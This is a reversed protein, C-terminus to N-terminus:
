RKMVWGGGTEEIAKPIANRAEEITPFIQFSVMHFNNIPGIIQAPYGKDQLTKVLNEANTKESFSGVIIHYSGSQTVTQKPAPKPTVKEEEPATPTTIKETIQNTIDDESLDNQLVPESVEENENISTDDSIEKISNEATNTSKENTDIVGFLDKVKEPYLGTYIAGAGLLIIFVIIPYFFVSRTKATKESASSTSTDEKTTPTEKKQKPTETKSAVKKEQSIEEKAVFKNEPKKKPEKDVKEQISEKVPKITPEKKPNPTDIEQESDQVIPKEIMVEKAVVEAETKQTTETSETIEKKEAITKKTGKKWTEFAFSDDNRKVFQGFRYMSYTEGKNLLAILDRVYKSVKNLAEQKDIKEHEVIYNVLKGDNFKLYENFMIEGTEENTISLAGFDPLIVSGNTKILEQIYKDM